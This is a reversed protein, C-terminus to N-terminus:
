YVGVKRVYGQTEAPLYSYWNQAGGRSLARDINGPGANYSAIALQSALAPYDRAYRGYMARLYQSAWAGSAGPDWVNQASIPAVGYGPDRATAPMIQFPGQAGAPSVARDNGASETMRVSHLLEPSPTGDPLFTGGNAGPLPSYSGNQAGPRPTYGEPAYGLGPVAPLPMQFLEQEEEEERVADAFMDGITYQPM